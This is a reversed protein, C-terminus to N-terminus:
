HSLNCIQRRAEIGMTIASDHSARKYGHKMNWHANRNAQSPPESLHTNIHTPAMNRPVLSLSLSVTTRVWLQQTPKLIQSWVGVLECIWPM